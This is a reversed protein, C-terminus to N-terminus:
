AWSKEAAANRGAIRGGALVSIGVNAGAPGYHDGWISGMVGAEYLRPIPKGDYGIVQGKENREPGGMTSIGGVYLKMAYYPGNDWTGIVGMNGVFGKTPNRGFRDSVNDAVAKNIQDIEAKLNEANMGTKEALEKLTDGKIIWGKAVETSNDNSFEPAGGLGDPLWSTYSSAVPGAKRATEDFVIWGPNRSFGLGTEDVEVMNKWFNHEMLRSENSFRKGYKDCYMWSPKRAGFILYGVKGDEFWPCYYGCLGNMHWLRAGIKGAMTIGDGTNFKWGAFKMPYPRLYNRVMEDNFDFPGTCLVVAKRARIVIEKGDQEARVGIIEKTEPNQILEKAPTNYLVKIGRAEAQEVLADCLIGGHAGKTAPNKANSGSPRGTTMDPQGAAAPFESMVRDGVAFKIGMSELWQPNKCTEESVARIVADSVGNQAIADKLYAVMSEVSKPATINCDSIKTCGGSIPSKELALVVGAGGDAAAIASVIGSGGFGLVVVDAEKDWSKPILPSSSRAAGSSAGSAIGPLMGSAAAGSAGAVVMGKLFDRRNLNQKAKKEKSM